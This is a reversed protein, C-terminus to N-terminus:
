NIFQEANFQGINGLLQRLFTTNRVSSDTVRRSLPVVQGDELGFREINTVVGRGDFSIAVVQREIAKPALAGFHRWRSGVYYWAQDQLVGSTTPRGVAEEVSGQTDVGVTIEALDEDSPVYGHNRYVAACATLGFVLVGLLLARTWIRLISSQNQWITAM